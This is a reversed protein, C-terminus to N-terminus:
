ICILDANERSEQQSQVTMLESSAMTQRLLDYAIRVHKISGALDGKALQSYVGIKFEYRVNEIQDKNLLKKQKNKLERKKTSYYTTAQEVIKKVFEKPSSKLGDMGNQIFFSHKVGNM